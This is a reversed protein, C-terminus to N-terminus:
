IAKNLKLQHLSSCTNLDLKIYSMAMMLGTSVDMVRFLTLTRKHETKAKQAIHSWQKVLLFAFIFLYIFSFCSSPRTGNLALHPNSNPNPNFRQSESAEFILFPFRCYFSIKWEANFLWKGRENEWKLFAEHYRIFPAWLLFLFLILLRSWGLLM